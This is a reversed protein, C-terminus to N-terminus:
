VQPRRQPARRLIMAQKSEPDYGLKEYFGRVGFSTGTLLMIKYCGASWAQEAAYEMVQRGIGLGQHSKLTVVNEILAYPRGGFTMNPLVHLTVMSVPVGESEAVVVQTGPHSLVENLRARGIDGDLVEITGVLEKYLAHLAQFDSSTAARLIM